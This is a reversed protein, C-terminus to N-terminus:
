QHNGYGETNEFLTVHKTELLSYRQEQCITEEDKRYNAIVIHTARAKFRNRINVSYKKGYEDIIDNGYLEEILPTKGIVMLAKCPLKYFEDALRRHEEENFGDKYEKNGYDTFTCDYPPDLFVFDNEECMEFIKGYDENYVKTRQLLLSHSATVGSTNLNPYRGYPVNFEGKANYRIMGSYSTKNIYFYLAADSFRKETLGNFQDRVRYYDAENKDDVRRDPFQAKLKEFEVRNARYREEIYDLEERLSTFDDRVGRYFDILKENIDNIIADRPELHFYLAGGGVFPEVYRGSFRPIHWTINPIERSKGGRYKIMPEVASGKGNLKLVFKRSFVTEHLHTPSLRTM